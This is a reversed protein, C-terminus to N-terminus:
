PTGAENTALQAADVATHKLKLGVNDVQAYLSLREARSSGCQDGFSLRMRWRLRRASFVTRGSRLRPHEM